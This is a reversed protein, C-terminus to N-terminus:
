MSNVTKECKILQMEQNEILTITGTKRNIDFTVGSAHLEFMESNNTIIDASVTYDAATIQSKYNGKKGSILIEKLSYSNQECIYKEYSFRKFDKCSQLFIIPLMLISFFLVKSLKIKKNMNFGSEFM